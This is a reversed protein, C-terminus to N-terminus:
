EIMVKRSIVANGSNVCVMYLGPSLKSTSFSVVSGEFEANIVQRGTLDIISVESQKRANNNLSLQMMGNSQIIIINQGKDALAELGTTTQYIIRYSYWTRSTVDYLWVKGNAYSFRFMNSTIATTPLHITMTLLGSTKSFLLVDKNVYDLLGIEKGVCGTFIVSTSNIDTLNAIGTLPLSGLANWSPRSYRFISGNYYYIMENSSYDLAGCSQVDPQSMSSFVVVGTSQAYGSVNLAPLYLGNSSYGNAEIQALEPNWWLGRSDFNTTAQFLPVGTNSFTELPYSNSGAILAYYLSDHPNFAVGSGNTGSTGVFTLTLDPVANLLFECQSHGSYGSLCIALLVMFFLPRM